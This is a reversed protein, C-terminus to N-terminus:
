ERHTHRYLRVAGPKQPSRMRDRRRRRGPRPRQERQLGPEPQM